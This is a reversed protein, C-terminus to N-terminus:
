PQVQASARWISGVPMIVLMLDGRGMRHNFQAIGGAGELARGLDALLDDGATRMVTAPSVNSM